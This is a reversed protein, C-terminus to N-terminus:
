DCEVGGAGMTPRTALRPPVPHTHHLPHPPPVTARPFRRPVAPAQQTAPSFCVGHPHCCSLSLPPLPSAFFITHQWALVRRGLSHHYPPPPLPTAPSPGGRM